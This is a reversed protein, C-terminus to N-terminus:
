HTRKQTLLFSERALILKDGLRKYESGKINIITHQSPLKVARKNKSLNIIVQVENEACSRRYVWLKNHDDARLTQFSGETLAKNKLRFKILSQYFDFWNSHTSLNYFPREELVGNEQGYYVLPTGPITFLIVAALRTKRQGFCKIFRPLDHNELYRLNLATPPYNFATKQLGYSLASVPKRGNIVDLLNGYFDTDYSMDFEQRHFAPQRPLVENILLCSPNIKKVERRFDKWFDHPIAWAVDCRLGDLGLGVWFRAANLLYNRVQPSNFNLNVLTDWDNHYGWSGDARWHFWHRLPSLPNNFAASVFVHQDSLHNAVFDFIVKFGQNHASDIFRRYERLDGYDRRTNFFNVPAYGHETPGEYVPMLWLTNVGLKKLKPLSACLGRFNRSSGFRALYIEYVVAKDACRPSADFDTVTTKKFHNILVTRPFFQRGEHEALAYFFYSGEPNNKDFYLHKESIHIQSGPNKKDALWSIRTKSDRPEAIINITKARLETLLKVDVEPNIQVDRISNYGRWGDSIKEPNRPDTIWEKDNLVYKYEYRGNDLKLALSWRSSDANPKLPHAKKDWQNFEGVLAVREIKKGDKDAIYTFETTKPKGKLVVHESVAKGSLGASDRVTLQFSYKGPANASFVPCPSDPNKITGKRAASKIKWDYSVITEFDPDFSLGGNLHVTDGAYAFTTYGANAQPAQNQRNIVWLGNQWFLSEKKRNEIWIKWTHTGESLAPFLCFATSDRWTLKQEKEDIKFRIRYSGGELNRDFMFKISDPRNYLWCGNAPFIKSLEPTSDTNVHLYSNSNPGRYLPNQPDRLWKKGNLLYRYYHPGKELAIKIRWIGDDDELLHRTKSWNNFDGALALSEISYLEKRNDFIFVKELTDTRCSIFFLLIFLFGSISKKNLAM